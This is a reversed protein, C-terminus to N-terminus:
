RMLGLHIDVKPVVNSKTRVGAVDALVERERPDALREQELKLTLTSVLLFLTPAFM